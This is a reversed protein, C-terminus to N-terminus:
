GFAGACFASAFLALVVAAVNAISALISSHKASHGGLSKGHRERHKFWIAVTIPWLLAAGLGMPIVLLMLGYLRQGFGACLLLFLVAPVSFVILASPFPAASADSQRLEQTLARRRAGRRRQLSSM